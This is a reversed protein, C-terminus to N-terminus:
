HRAESMIRRYVAIGCLAGVAFASWWPLTDWFKFYSMAFLGAVSVLAFAASADKSAKKEALMITQKKLERLTEDM